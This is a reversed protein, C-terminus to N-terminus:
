VKKSLLQLYKECRKMQKSVIRADHDLEYEDGNVFIVTCKGNGRSRCKLIENSCLWICAPDDPSLLPFFIRGSSGSILVPTKQRTHMILRFADQRGKLTSGHRLCFREMLEPATCPVTITSRNRLLCEAQTDTNNRILLVQSPNILAEEYM